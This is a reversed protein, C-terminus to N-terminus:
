SIRIRSLDIVMLLMRITKSTVSPNASSWSVKVLIIICKNFEETIRMKLTSVKNNIKTQIKHNLNKM